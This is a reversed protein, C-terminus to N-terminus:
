RREFYGLFRLLGTRSGEIALDAGALTLLFNREGAAIDKWTQETTVLTGIAGKTEGPTLAAVGRRITLTFSKGSDTFRFGIHETNELTEEAKLLIPMADLYNEIPLSALFATPTRMRFAPVLGDRVEAAETLYYHRANPNSEAEGLMRLARSRLQPVAEHGPLLATLHDSLELAWQAAGEELAQQARALLAETGGALHAMARARDNASLPRLTAPNGDFWGLYGNFIARASWAVTGYYEQLWPHEALHPPLALQTSIQDPTLGHNMLRVTQDHVFAIADRYDTLLAQITTAGDVPRTHSPVLHEAGLSRMLDLSSVWRTVDRHPTGRITYLNPFAQYINDGPFLVKEAPFWVLIQDDTEGPAHILELEIGAVNVTLRDSFIRTPPLAHLTSQPSLRLAKGIGANVLGADDLHNGFMRMSRTSIIPQVINVVQNIHFATTDHAYVPVEGGEAFAAAGFVHDAHNHTYIIAAVPKDSLARFATLVETAAEVSEMTDIIILGDDGEIMISNALGFGVAVHVRETVRIVEREFLASHAHLGEPSTLAAPASAPPPKDCAALLAAALLLFLYRM